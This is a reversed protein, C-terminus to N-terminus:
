SPQMVTDSCYLHTMRCPSYDMTVSEEISLSDAGLLEM